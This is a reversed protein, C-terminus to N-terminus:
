ALFLRRVETGKGPIPAEYYLRFRNVSPDYFFSTYLQLLAAADHFEGLKQPAFTRRVTKPRAAVYYDDFFCLKAKVFSVGKIKTKRPLDTGVPIMKGYIKSKHL